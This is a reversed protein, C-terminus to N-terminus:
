SAIIHKAHPIGLMKVRNTIAEADYGCEAWLEPQDGHEIIRDPIGLRVVQANYNNDAMFELVASGMGGELCGDEVTIVKSFKKFVEHLLAEDLPKVFRLDYHAPFYGENNLAAIAKVAENGIHGITLIAVDDGDCIMRGKGVKVAKFPKQWDVMVGNGRPYRIVFPGM